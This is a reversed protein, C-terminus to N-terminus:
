ADSEAEPANTNALTIDEAAVEGDLVVIPEPTNAARNPLADMAKDIASCGSLALMAGISVGALAIRMGASRRMALQEELYRVEQECKPCTGRCTGQYTCEKTILEIDNCEAIQRRIDRLMRCKEKGAM